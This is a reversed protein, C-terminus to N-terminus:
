HVIHDARAMLGEPIKLGLEKAVGFNITLVPDATVVPISEVPIGKLVKDALFAAQRGVNIPDNTLVFACKGGTGHYVLKHKAVFKSIASIVDQSIAFPDALHMIGDIELDSQKDLKNLEAAIGSADEAPFEVLTVNLLAAAKRLESLQESTSYYRNLYPLWIRKAEPSIELLIELSKVALDSAPYRVGTLNGGPNRISDILNNDDAFAFAFVVPINSGWTVDKAAVSVETPSTVILDYEETVWKKLIANETEPDFNTNKINYEINKDEFYSNDRMKEKFGEVLPMLFDAGILIGVRFVKHSSKETCSSILFFCLFVIFLFSCKSKIM